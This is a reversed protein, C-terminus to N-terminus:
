GIVSLDYHESLQLQGIAFSPAGKLQYGVSLAAGVQLYGNYDFSIAEGIPLSSRVNSPLKLGNFFDKAIQDFPQSKLYPHFYAYACAGGADLTVTAKLVSYAFSGAATISANADVLLGLLLGDPHSVFYKDLGHEALIAVDAATSDPWFVALRARTGAKIGLKIDNAVGFAFPQNGSVGFDVSLLDTTSATLPQNIQPITAHLTITGDGSLWLPIDSKTLTLDPM